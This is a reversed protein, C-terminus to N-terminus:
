YGYQIIKLKSNLMSIYLIYVSIWIESFKLFIYKTIQKIIKQYIKLHFNLRFFYNQLKKKKSFNSLIYISSSYHELTILIYM